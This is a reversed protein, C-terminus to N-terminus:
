AWGWLAFALFGNTKRGGLGQDVFGATAGTLNVVLELGDVFILAGTPKVRKINM